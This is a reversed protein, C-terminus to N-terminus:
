KKRRTLFGAAWLGSLIVLSSPEPVVTLVNDSGNANFLATGNGSNYATYDVLDGLMNTMSYTIAGEGIAKINFQFLETYTGIGTTSETDPDRLANVGGVQGTKPSNVSSYSWNSVLTSYPAPALITIDGNINSEKTIKVIGSNDVNLSLEWDVLGNTGTALPDNAWGWVHMTTTQGLTLTTKDSTIKFVLAAYSHASFLVSVVVSFILVLKKM